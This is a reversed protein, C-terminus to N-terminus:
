FMSQQQCSLAPSLPDWLPAGMMLEIMQDEYEEWIPTRVKFYSTVQNLKLPIIIPHTTDVPNELMHCAYDWQSYTGSVQSRWQDLCWECSVATPLSPSSQPGEYIAHNILLIVVQGIGPETYAITANVLHAHRSGAKWDHGFVKVPRNYNNVVLCHDGTVCTDAHSDLEIKMEVVALSNQASLHVTQM